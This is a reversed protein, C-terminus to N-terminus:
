GQAAPVTGQQAGDAAFWRAIIADLTGDAIMGALAQDIEKSLRFNGKRVAIVYGDTVVPEDAMVLAPNQPVYLRASIIDVLAADVEGVAVAAMAEDPHLYRRITLAGLRRTWRQAEADGAAAIEVAVTGGDLERMSQIPADARSVLTQGGDFYPRTYTVWHTRDLDVHLGALIADTQGIYLSNYLGDYGQLLFHAEAGLRRGIEIAIDPEIGVPREPAWATFPPYDPVVGVYFDGNVRLRHWTGDIPGFRAGPRTLQWGSLLLVLVALLALAPRPHRRAWAALRTVTRRFAIIDM